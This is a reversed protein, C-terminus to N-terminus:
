KEEESNKKKPKLSENIENIRKYMMLFLIAGESVLRVVINGVVLTVLFLLFNQSILGFSSITVFIAFFLYIIKIFFELTMTKFSLFNYLKKTFGNYGDEKKPDLFLFYVLFAGIIGLVLAVIAITPDGIGVTTTSPYVLGNYM